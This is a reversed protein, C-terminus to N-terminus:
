AKGINISTTRGSPDVITVKPVTNTVFLRGDPAFTMNDAVLVGPLPIDRAVTRGTTADIRHVMSPLIAQLSYITGPKEGRSAPPIKVSSLLTANTITKSRGTAPDTRVVRATLGDTTPSLLMGDADLASGNIALNPNLTTAAGTAPDVRYLGKGQYARGVLLQGDPALVIPNVGTGLNTLMRSHGDPTLVGIDGAVQGTWYITGNDTMVLDDPASTVGQAPGFRGIIEGTAPDAAVMEGGNLSAMWLVGDRYLVGNVSAPPKQSAQRCLTGAWPSGAPLAVPPAGPACGGAPPPGAPACGLAFAALTVVAAPAAGVRRRRTRMRPRSPVPAARRGRIGAGPSGPPHAAGRAPAGARVGSGKTDGEGEDRRDEGSAAVPM